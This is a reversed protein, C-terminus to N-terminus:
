YSIIQHSSNLRTSKRDVLATKSRRRRRGARGPGEKGRAAGQAELKVVKGMVFVCELTGARHSSRPTVRSSSPGEGASVSVQKTEIHQLWLHADGAEERRQR